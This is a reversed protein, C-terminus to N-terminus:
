SRAGKLALGFTNPLSAVGTYKGSRPNWKWLYGNSNYVHEFAQLTPLSSHVGSVASRSSFSISPIVGGFNLKTTRLAKVISQRTVSGKIHKAAQAVAQFGLWAEMTQDQFVKPSLTAASNGGKFAATMQSVFEKMLPLKSSLPQFDAGVYVRSAESGLGYWGGTGSLGLATCITFKAGAQSAARVFAQPGGSVLSMIVINAGDKTADAVYPSYDSTNAPASITPLFKDGTEKAASSWIPTLAGQIADPVNSVVVVKNGGAAKALAKSDCAVFTSQPFTLPFTSSGEFGNTLPGTNEVDAIGANALIAGYASGDFPNLDGVMVDVGSSVAERACNLTGTPTYNNNCTWIKIRHGNIGGAKNVANAGVRLAAFIGPWSVTSTNVPAQTGIIIPSKNAKKSDSTAAGAGCASAVLAVAMTLVGTVVTPAWKRRFSVVDRERELKSVVGFQSM